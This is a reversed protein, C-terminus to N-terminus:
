EHLNLLPSLGLGDLFPFPLTLPKDPAQSVQAMPRAQFSVTIKSYSIRGSLNELTGSLREIEETVRALEREIKL